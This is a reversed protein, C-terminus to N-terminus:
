TRTRRRHGHGPHWSEIVLHDAPDGLYTLAVETIDIRFFGAGVHPSDPPAPVEVLRGAMKADGAWAGDEPPEITPSHVAIRNDRRVDRLKLSGGMMGLTVDTDTFELESASIRPSGDARLTAITKNTGSGFVGRVREAFEPADKEIEQWTAM